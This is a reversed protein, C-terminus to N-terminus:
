TRRLARGHAVRSTQGRDGARHWMRRQRGGSLALGSRHLKDKVEEWLGADALVQEVRAKIQSEPCRQSTLRLGYAINDYISM